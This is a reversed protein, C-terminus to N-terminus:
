LRDQETEGERQSHVDKADTAGGEPGGGGDYAVYLGTARQRRSPRRVDWGSGKFVDVRTRAPWPHFRFRFRRSEEGTTRAVVIRDIGEFSGNVVTLPRQLVEM